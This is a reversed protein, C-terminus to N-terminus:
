AQMHQSGFAHRWSSKNGEFYWDVLHAQSMPRAYLYGQGWDYGLSVLHNLQEVTEIGEAVLRIGLQRALTLASNIVAGYRVEEYHQVFGADLKIENFPMQCLRELSSYGVGFDDIALSVGMMRLRVMNEMSIDPLHMLGKETLELILGAPSAGHIRLAEKLNNVFNPNSMQSADVNFALKFPHERSQVTRQLSLGQSLLSFFMDDVLGNCEITPLFAAPSLLGRKASQWRVLVEAGDMTGTQLHFKPQFYARFEQHRVADRIEQETPEDASAPLVLPNTKQVPEYKAILMELSEIHLPKGVSGLLKLGQTTVIRDVARLLEDTVSSCIIVANILQADHALRLFTLGDMGAMNLDCVAIDVPAGSSILSLAERGDAAEIVHTHGLRNLLNVIAARQFAHDELVLIRLSKM